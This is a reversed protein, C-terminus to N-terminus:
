TLRLQDVLEFDFLCGLSNEEGQGTTWKGMEQYQTIDSDIPQHYFNKEIIIANYNKSIGKPLYCKKVNFSRADNNWVLYVLVYM